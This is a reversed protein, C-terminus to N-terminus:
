KRKLKYTLTIEVFPLLIILDFSNNVRTPIIGLVLAPIFKVSVKFKKKM